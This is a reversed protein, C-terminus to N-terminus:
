ALCTCLEEKEAPPLSELDVFRTVVHRLGFRRSGNQFSIPWDQKVREGQGYPVELELRLRQGQESWPTTRCLYPYNRLADELDTTDTRLGDQLWVPLGPVFSKRGLYLQWVPKRLAGHIEALLNVEGLLGVLFCADSLYFRESTVTRRSKADAATPVGYGKDRRLHWGGATHFDRKMTGERDVRVGMKLASLEELRPQNDRPIGMAACLLGIVGSKSPELGTDRNTFRSQTGWSQM